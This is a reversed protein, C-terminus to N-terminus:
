SIKGVENRAHRSYDANELMGITNKEYVVDYIEIMAEIKVEVCNM